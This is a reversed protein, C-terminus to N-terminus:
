GDEYRCLRGHAPVQVGHVATLIEKAFVRLIEPWFAPLRQSRPPLVEGEIATWPDANSTLLDPVTTEM